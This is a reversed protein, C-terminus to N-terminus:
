PWGTGTAMDIGLDLRKGETGAFELMAMWKPTLFDIYRSEFGVAGYLPTIEVGGFGHSQLDELERTLNPKDVASGLWWWRTWPKNDRTIKPWSLDTSEDAMTPNVFSSISVLLVFSM